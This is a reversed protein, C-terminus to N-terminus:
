AGGKMLSARAVQDREQECYVASLVEALKLAVPDLDRRNTLVFAMADDLSKVDRLENDPTAKTEFDDGFIEALLNAKLDICHSRVPYSMIYEPQVQQDTVVRNLADM